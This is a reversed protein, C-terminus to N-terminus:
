KKEATEAAKRAEEQWRLIKERVADTDAGLRKLEPGFETMLVLFWALGLERRRPDTWAELRRQEKLLLQRSLEPSVARGTRVLVAAPRAEAKTPHLSAMTKQVDTWMRQAAVAFEYRPLPRNGNFSSEPFGTFMRFETELHQVVGYAPHIAPVDAFPEGASKDAPPAACASLTMFVTALALCARPSRFRPRQM